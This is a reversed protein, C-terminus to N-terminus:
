SAERSILLLHPPRSVCLARRKDDSFALLRTAEECILVVVYERENWWTGCRVNSKMTFIAFTECQIVGNRVLQVVTETTLIDRLVILLYRCVAINLKHIM